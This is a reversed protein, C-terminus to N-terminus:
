GRARAIFQRAFSIAETAQKSTFADSPIGGPLGNPYRTPIYYQDLQRAADLLDALDARESLLGSLLEVLSHGLVARSGRRYHLSKLAKEGAQQCIFCAQAFFGERVGLEAFALDSAAQELWRRAEIEPQRM